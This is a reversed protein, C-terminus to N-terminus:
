ANMCPQTNTVIDKERRGLAAPPPLFNSRRPPTDKARHPLENSEASCGGGITDHRGCTDEVVTFLRRGMDSYIGHGRTLFITGAYKMSRFLTTYPFLTSRPPRRIM